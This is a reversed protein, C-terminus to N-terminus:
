YKEYKILTQSSNFLETCKKNLEELQEALKVNEDNKDNLLKMLFQNDATLIKNKEQSLQGNLKKPCLADIASGNLKKPRLADIASGNFKAL